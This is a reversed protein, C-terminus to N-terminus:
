AAGHHPPCAPVRHDALMKVGSEIAVRRLEHGEVLLILVALYSPMANCCHISELFTTSSRFSGKLEDAVM